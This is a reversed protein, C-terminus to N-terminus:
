RRGGLDVSDEEDAADSTYLLCTTDNETLAYSQQLFQFNPLTRSEGDATSTYGFGSNSTTLGLSIIKFNQGSGQSGAQVAGKEYAKDKLCGTATILLILTLILSLKIFHIKM